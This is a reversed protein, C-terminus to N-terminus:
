AIIVSGARGSVWVMLLCWGFVGVAVVPSGLYSM